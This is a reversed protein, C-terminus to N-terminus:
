LLYYLSLFEPGKESEKICNTLFALMLCMKWDCGAGERGLASRLGWLDGATSPAWM